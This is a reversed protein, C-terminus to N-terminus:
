SSPCEESRPLPTEGRPRRPSREYPGSPMAYPAVALPWRSWKPRRPIAWSQKSPVFIAYIRQSPANLADAGSAALLMMPHLLVRSRLPASAPPFPFLQGGRCDIHPVARTRGLKLRLISPERAMATPTGHGRSVRERLLHNCQMQNNKRRTILNYTM